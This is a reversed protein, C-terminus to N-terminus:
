LDVAGYTLSERAEPEWFPVAEFGLSKAFIIGPFQRMVTTYVNVAINYQSIRAAIESEISVVAEVFRKTAAVTTTGMDIILSGAGVGEIIGGDGLIVAEAATTDAVDVIVTKAARAVAAPSDAVTVRAHGTAHEAAFDQAVRRTRNYVVLKAGAALLNRCMPGGMLGLGAFGITTGKLAKM